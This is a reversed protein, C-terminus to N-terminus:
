ELNEDGAWVRALRDIIAREEVLVVNDAKAIYELDGIIADRQHAPVAERIRAEAADVVDPHPGDAYVRLAESLIVVVDSPLAAPLWEGLKRSIADIEPQTLDRDSGHALAIYVIALDHIRSWSGPPGDGDIISWLRHDPEALHVDWTRAVAEIFRAELSSYEGDELALAILDEVAAARDAPASHDRVRQICEFLVSGDLSGASQDFASRVDETAADVSGDWAWKALLGAVREELTSEDSGGRSGVILYITALDRLV